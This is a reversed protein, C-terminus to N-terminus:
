TFLFDSATQVKLAVFAFGRRSSQTLGFTAIEPAAYRM